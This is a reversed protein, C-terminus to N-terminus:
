LMPINNNNKYTTFLHSRYDPANDNKFVYKQNPIQRAVVPWSNNELIDINKEGFQHKMWEVFCVCAIIRLVDLPWPVLKRALELSYVKRCGRNESRRQYICTGYLWKLFCDSEWWLFKNKLDNEVAWSRRNACWHKM